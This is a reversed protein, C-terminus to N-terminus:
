GTIAKCCGHRGALNDCLIGDALVQFDDTMELTKHTTFLAVCVSSKYLVAPCELQVSLKAACKPDDQM